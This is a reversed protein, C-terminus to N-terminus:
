IAWTLVEQRARTVATYLWRPDFNFSTSPEIYVNDWEGGQAKHCTIAFAHRLRMAGLYKDDFINKTERYRANYKNAYAILEREKENSLIGHFTNLSEIM